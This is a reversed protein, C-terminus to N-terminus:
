EVPRKAENARAEEIADAIQRPVSITRPGDYRGAYIPFGVSGMGPKLMSLALSQEDGTVVIEVTDQKM